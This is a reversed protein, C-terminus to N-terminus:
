PTAAATELEAEVEAALEADAPEPGVTGARLAAAITGLLARSRPGVVQWAGRSELYLDLESLLLLGAATQWGQMEGASALVATAGPTLTGDAVVEVLDALAHVDSADLQGEEILAWASVQAWAQARRLTRDWAEYDIEELNSPTSTSSCAPLPAIAVVAIAIALVRAPTIM